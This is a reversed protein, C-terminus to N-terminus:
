KGPGDHAKLEAMPRCLDAVPRVEIQAGYALIPCAQALQVAVDISSVALLFYGAIAEKSEAFVGDTVSAGKAGTVLRGEEMLPQAGRQVGSQILGDVWAYFETMVRQLEAPSMGHNWHTGRILLLYEDTPTQPNTSAPNPTSM